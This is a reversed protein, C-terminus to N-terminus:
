CKTFETLIELKEGLDIMIKEHTGEERNEGCRNMEKDLLGQSRKKM